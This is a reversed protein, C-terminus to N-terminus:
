KLRKIPVNNLSCFYISVWKKSLMKNFKFIKPTVLLLLIKSIMLFICRKCSCSQQVNYHLTFSAEAIRIISFACMLILSVVYM